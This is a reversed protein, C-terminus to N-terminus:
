GRPHVSFLILWASQLDPISPIRELLTRHSVLKSQRRVFDAHRLPIGLIIVGQDETPINEDGGYRWTQILCAFQRSCCTSTKLRRRGRIGSKTKGHHIQIKVHQWLEARLFSFVQVVREPGCVVYLDDCFTLHGNSQLRTFSGTSVWQSCHRCLSHQSSFCSPMTRFTCSSNQLFMLFMKIPSKTIPTRVVKQRPFGHTGPRAGHFRNGKSHCFYLMSQSRVHQRCM